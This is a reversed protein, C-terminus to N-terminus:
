ASNAVAVRVTFWPNGSPAAIFFEPSGAGTLGIEEGPMVVTPPMGPHFTVFLPVGGVPDLNVVSLTMSYAPLMFNLVTPPLTDPINPPFAGIGLNPAKGTLTFIPEKTSFFDYPPIVVIPGEPLFTGSVHDFAAVRIFSTVEDSPLYSATTTIPTAYDDPDYIARTLGRSSEEIAPLRRMQIAKSRFDGGNPVQFMPLTGFGGVGAVPGYADNLRAAGRVEYHTISNGPSKPLTLNVQGTSRYQNSPIDRQRTM